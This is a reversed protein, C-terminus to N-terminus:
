LEPWIVNMPFGPQKTIDLLAQRYKKMAEQEAKTMEAWRLPNSVIADVELELKIDRDYRVTQAAIEEYYAAPPKVWKNTKPDFTHHHDPKLPVTRYGSPYSALHAETPESITEWYGVSEHYYGHTM